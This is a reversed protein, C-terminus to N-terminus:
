WYFTLQCMKALSLMLVCVFAATDGYSQAYDDDRIVNVETMGHWHRRGRNGGDGFSRLILTMCSRWLCNAYCEMLKFMRQKTNRKFFTTNSLQGVEPEFHEKHNSHKIQVPWKTMTGLLKASSAKEITCRLM